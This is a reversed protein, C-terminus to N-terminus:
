LADFSATTTFDGHEIRDQYRVDLITEFRLAMKKMYNSYWAMSDAQMRHLRDQDNEIDRLFRLLDTWSNLFVFPAGSEILPRFSNACEHAAYADDLVVIPISGAECAEYIRYAEPNHGQPCLTFKSKLLIKRYEDPVVYGNKMTLKKAWKEVIHLFYKQKNKGWIAVATQLESRLKRRSLSSLSGIFNFLYERERSLAVHHPQIRNFESRTGLPLYQPAMPISPSRDQGDGWYTRFHARGIASETRCFEDGTSVLIDYYKMGNTLVQEYREHQFNKIRELLHIKPTGEDRCKPHSRATKGDPCIGQHVCDESRLIDYYFNGTGFMSIIQSRWLSDQRPTRTYVCVRQKGETTWEGPDVDFVRPLDLGIKLMSIDGSWHFANRLTNNPGILDIGFVKTHSDNLQEQHQNSIQTLVSSPNSYISTSDEVTSEINLNYEENKSIENHPLLSSSSTETVYGDYVLVQSSWGFLEFWSFFSILLVVGSIVVLPRPRGKNPFHPKKM